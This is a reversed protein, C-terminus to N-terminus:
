DLKLGRGRFILIQVVFMVSSVQQGPLVPGTTPMNSVIHSTAFTVNPSSFGAIQVCSIQM